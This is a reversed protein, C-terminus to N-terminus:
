LHVLLVITYSKRVPCQRGQTNVDIGYKHNIVCMRRKKLINHNANKIWMRRHTKECFTEKIEM